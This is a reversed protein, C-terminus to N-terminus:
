IGAVIVWRDPHGPVPRVMAKRHERPGPDGEKFAEQPGVIRIVGNKECEYEFPVMLVRRGLDYETFAEVEGIDVLRLWKFNLKEIYQRLKEPTSGNSLKAAANYDMAILAEIFQRVTEAASEEDTMGGQALGCDITMDVIKAGDPAEFLLEDPVVEPDYELFRKYTRLKFRGDLLKYLEFKEVLNSIREIYLIYRRHAWHPSKTSVYEDTQTAIVRIPDEKKSSDEIEISVEGDAEMEQLLKMAFKPDLRMRNQPELLKKNYTYEITFLNKEPDWQKLVSSKWDWIAFRFDQMGEHKTWIAEPESEDNLLVWHESEPYDRDNEVYSGMVHVYRVYNYAEITQEIAYAPAVMDVSGGFHNIGIIAAIIIAAAAALKTMKSKMIIRWINPKNSASQTQQKKALVQCADSLTRADLEAGTRDQLQRISKEIKRTPRM